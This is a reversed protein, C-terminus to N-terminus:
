NNLKNFYNEALENWNERVYETDNSNYNKKMIGNSHELGFWHGIEHYVVFKMGISDELLHENIEITGNHLDTLGQVSHSHYFRMWDLCYAHDYNINRKKCDEIFSDFYPVLDPSMALESKTCNKYDKKPSDSHCASIAFMFIFIYNFKKM